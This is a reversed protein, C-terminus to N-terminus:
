WFACWGIYHQCLNEVSTAQLILKDVQAPVALDNCRRIDNGTLKDTIRKLVLLARANRVELDYHKNMRAAEAEDIKGDRLLQETELQPLLIGQAEAVAQTPFDFGWNILPDYAFAELIAMLSEKNDRLTRMVHECTIRFSGEIGSVEMAYTLMRTLRFPVKEPYKERLIAAEFCDGFDVHVVKGTIRDLMLNLPHRDGLGLIYGVMLMVALSRTYTTRRDLWLELLRLKLWLVKYLDQGRTNDLAYMFVEVKQLLTLKDYDPAMQLMIRHEINLLIKRLERYERILVHFTDLNRVWGLLGLKPLLPIASYRRIDLHRKFCESDNVLLTNVLGFLQMVLNDQRIDEKAKLLFRYDKGDLGCMLLERPRQKLLMVLFTPEFRTIRVVAHGAEYTGPVALELDRVALLQPLVYQLELLKLQQVQRQLKRIVNYYIDWAQNLNAMDRTRKFNLLWEYADNLDRGFLNQFQVERLTQPGRELMKHLPELVAFMKDTNREHFFFRTAEEFAEHWQEVWLLAVRILEQLVLEAQEVLTPLHVRMRDIILMAARKRLVLELKIAVTLPYVLAQPHAKGLDSLLLHLALLVKHNPQHIRLILQPVVELWTDIKVMDFGRVMASRAEEIGGFKFWLTLLRLTDQLALLESLAILHFFGTIAPVVHRQLLSLPLAGLLPMQPVHAGDTEDNAATDSGVEGEPVVEGEKVEEGEVYGGAGEGGQYMSIVEFNVLAWNHWAKYWKSDFHTALLYSGLISELLNQRWDPNLAIQWEGQKLFCRALLKTYEGINKLVGERELPLPQMILDNPNLGLDQLLRTSFDTLHDLADRQPGVAWMYKIQTYVVHPLARSQRPERPDGAELLLNLLKETLGLRGLKRCLNAYKIWVEMDQKPLVVLARVKLMRQWVDVNRQCGLLRQNWTRRMSMREESGQPLNKYTIIEELEALMQVRVVVGYARNYSELVLATIETVLLDRAQLIHNAAETFNNRHLCLIADFFAKDPLHRKMMGIYTAMREWKGLGWAAAAALPAMARKVELSADSWKLQALELLQEWEGLAHLCRMKGMTIEMLGPEDRERENYANLADDWRQLKEYWLEKLQLEHHAQLHRLIGVAADLQQLHNNILILAEITPTSPEQIFEMEKYHLAKAYAHCRQAYGGLTPVDIPLPKDDHEMFECLNLLIQHIEPPNSQLSLAHCLHLVLDDLNPRYLEDWCLAFLANFLDKALPYYLSALVSCARLAPSPSEKLLEVLLRRIWEQWDERTHKNATNWAARLVLQNVPMKKNSNDAADPVEQQQLLEYEKDVIANLPLPEGNLLKNVLQDYIGAHIRNRVLAKSIVPIYVTFESGMQLLLLCITNMAAKRVDENAYLLVRLLPHIIRSSFDVLNVNRLLRGVTTILMRRLQPDLLEFLRVVAPVILHIYEETNAGFVVFARLVRMSSLHDASADDNLVNILLSLIDALYPKFEGDLAKLLLEVMLIITPQLEPLKVFFEKVVGLVQDLFPRIHQKVIVILYGLQKFYFELMLQPCTRMVNVVSPIIQKLFLVCRLGLTSFIHYIAQMVAMHHTHLLPDKLIKMLTTIVVTPYYDENHPLLGQMLLLVDIPPANQDNLDDSTDGLTQKQNIEVERHKYPDLAGLIGLLRITERRVTPLTESKLIGVLMGLLQPYDLLPQIVYECSLAIQGLAKLAADRKISLLQDQFTDLILPMVKPIFPLFDTRAVVLLEGLAGIASSAVVLLADSAKPLLVDVIPRVYPRAIDKSHMILCLLLTSLEERERSGTSYQLETLLQILTKRLLPVIYAPNITSLRGICVVAAQQIAFVEDNLCMFLLRVNDAQLLQPNFSDGLLQLVLLRIDAVPDLVAVLLLRDLVEGVTALARASTQTTIPDRAFLVCLVVAAMKRVEPDSHEIYGVVVYRVFEALLVQEHSTNEFHFAQLMSLAQTIIQIDVTAASVGPPHEERAAMRERYTHALTPNMFPSAVLVASERDDVSKVPAGPARFRYGSLALSLIDLLKTSILRSLPPIERQLTVLCTQMHPLLPCALVMDLIDRQLHKTLASGVACALRGLCYFIAEETKRKHRPHQKFSLGDRVNDLIADVYTAMQGQVQFAIDGILVLVPAEDRKHKLQGLYFLLTRHLYRDVFRHPNTQALLSVITIAEHRVVPYKHDKLGMTKEYVLEYKDQPFTRHQHLLERLTLLLGHTSENSGMKLGVLAMDLLRGFWALRLQLDRGQVLQLCHRLCLAADTRIVLRADLLVSWINDLIQNAYAYVLTPANDALALIVLVAAHRRNENRELLLLWEILRKAEFAVFDAALTGGPIALRGLAATAAYMVQVDACPILIRLYNAYRNFMSANELGAEFDISAVIAAVAGLRDAQDTSHILELVRGNVEKHYTNFQEVLSDRLVLTLHRTLDRQARAREALSTSRLRTFISTLPLNDISPPM